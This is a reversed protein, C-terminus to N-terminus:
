WLISRERPLRQAPLIVSTVEIVADAVRAASVGAPKKNIEQVCRMVGFM